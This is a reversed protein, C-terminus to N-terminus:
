TVNYHIVPNKELSTTVYNREKKESSLSTGCGDLAGKDQALRSFSVLVM